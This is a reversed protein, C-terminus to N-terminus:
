GQLNAFELSYAEASQEMVAEIWAQEDYDQFQRESLAIVLVDQGSTSHLEDM